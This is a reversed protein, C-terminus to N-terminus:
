RILTVEGNLEQVSGDNLTVVARYIYSGSPAITGATRGDWGEKPDTSKFMRQGYRSFVELDLEIIGVGRVFFIDNNGDENPSFIEPIFVPDAPLICVSAFATDSCGGRNFVILSVVTQGAGTASLTPTSGVIYPIVVDGLSWEGGVANQSVDIFQVNQRESFPICDLNPNISFNAVIPPYSPILVTENEICGTDVNEMELNLAQGALASASESGSEGNWSTIYNGTELYVVQATGTEGFCLTDSTLVEFAIPPLVELFVSHVSPESCGDEVTVSVTTSAQPSFTQTNVPFAGNSWTYTYNFNPNGGNAIVTMVAASGECLTSDSVTFETELEPYVSVTVTDGGSCAIGEYFYTFEYTGPGHVSPNFFGDTQPGTFIGGEPTTVVVHNSDLFCYTEQLGQIQIEELIEVTVNISDSCGAPTAWYVYYTGGESAGPDFTGNVPDVIGSGSWTGGSQVGAGFTTINDTYCFTAQNPSIQAPYVTVELSDTCTNRTYYIYYNGTGGSAPSFQWNDNQYSVGNGTWEGGWSPDNQVNEENLIFPDDNLCFDAFELGIRTLRVYIYMTDSCGNPVTYLLESFSGDAVLAPDFLGTSTDVLGPGSWVGGAPVPPDDYFVQPDELPCATHFRNGAYIEKIFGTYEQQCGNIIYTFTVDGAPSNEPSFVGYLSDVIGVGEWYGGFPSFVLTDFWVSQCLTDFTFPGVFDGVNVNVSDTCGNIEYFVVYSGEAIPDFVGASTTNPGTWVGGSPEANLQFPATGPCAATNDDTSIPTITILVSDLCGLAEFYIINLGAFASDPEFLGTVEDEVGPGDWLGEIGAELEFADISQCITQDPTIIQSSSVELTFNFTDSNGTTIETVTVTYITTVNPCVNFPGATAPLGNNWSYTLGSCSQSVFEISTCNGPCIVEEEAVIAGEVPCTDVLFSTNIIFPYFTGCIDPISINLIVAYTCNADLEEGLTLTVFGASDDPCTYTVDEVAIAVGDREVEFVAPVLWDCFLDYSFNVQVQNSFCAPVPNVSTTPPIPPPVETEWVLMFGINVVSNDSTFVFTISGSSATLSPPVTTGTFQGLLPAASSSGNYVFLFDAGPDLAFSGQFVITIPGGTTITLTTFENNAYQGFEGGSDYLIGRCDTLTTDSMDYEPLEQAVMSKTFLVFLLIWSINWIKGQM